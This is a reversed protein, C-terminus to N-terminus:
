FGPTYTPQQGDVFHATLTQQRMAPAFSIHTWEVEFIIQDFKIGSASIAKCVELPTGYGPCKFDAADGDMHASKLAGGRATNLALCRFGSDINMPHM